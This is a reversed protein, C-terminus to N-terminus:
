SGSARASVAIRSAGSTADIDFAAVGPTWGPTAFVSGGAVGVHDAGELSVEGAGGGATLQAQAASPLSLSFVSAGGALRIPVRGAPSPLAVDIVSSGATFALGALSANRLDAETRTTGGDLELQWTVRSNLTVTVVPANDASLDVERGAADDSTSLRAAPAGAPTLVRVLSGGAGFDALNVKLVTTGTLVRLTARAHGGTGVSVTHATAAPSATASVSAPTSV